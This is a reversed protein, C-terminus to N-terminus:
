KTQLDNIKLDHKLLCLVTNAFTPKIPLLDCIATTKTGATEHLKLENKKQM